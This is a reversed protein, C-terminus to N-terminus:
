SFFALLAVIGEWTLFIKGNYLEVVYGKKKLENIHELSSYVKEKPVAKKASTANYMCFLEELLEINLKSGLIKTM